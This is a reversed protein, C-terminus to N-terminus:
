RICFRFVPYVTYLTLLKLTISGANSRLKNETKHTFDVYGWRIDFEYHRRRTFPLRLVFMDKRFLDWVYMYDEIMQLLDIHYSEGKDKKRHCM